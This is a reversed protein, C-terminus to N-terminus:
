PPPPMEIPSEEDSLDPEDDNFEGLMLLTKEEEGPEEDEDDDFEAQAACDPCLASNPFCAACFEIGCMTCERLFDEGHLDCGTGFGSYPSFEEDDFNM